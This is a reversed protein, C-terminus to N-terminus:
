PPHRKRHGKLRAEPKAAVDYIYRTTIQLLKRINYTHSDGTCTFRFSFRTSIKPEAPRITKPNDDNSEPHTERGTLVGEKGRELSSSDKNKAQGGM